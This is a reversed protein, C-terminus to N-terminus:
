LTVFKSTYTKKNITNIIFSVKLREIHKRAQEEYKEKDAVTTAGNFRHVFSEQIENPNRFSLSSGPYTCYSM